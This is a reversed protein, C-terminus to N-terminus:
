QKQSLRLIGTCARHASLPSHRRLRQISPFSQQMLICCLARQQQFLSCTSLTHLDIGYGTPKQRHLYVFYEQATQQFRVSLRSMVFSSSQWNLWSLTRLEPGSEFRRIGTKCVPANVAEGGSRKAPISPNSGAVWPNVTWQEVASSYGWKTTHRFPISGKAVPAVVRREEMQAVSVTNKTSGRPSPGRERCADRARPKCQHKLEARMPWRQWPETTGEPLSSSGDAAEYVATREM